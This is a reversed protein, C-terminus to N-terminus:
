ANPCLRFYGKVRKGEITVYGNSFRQWDLRHMVAALKMGHRVDQQGIPVKLVHTLLDASIVRDETVSETSTYRYIIQHLDTDYEGNRFVTVEVDSPMDALIDEWPDKVRRQEQEVAADEWLCEDLTLSEGESEYHAAEGWIQFRDERLKDLDIMAIVLMCWFRRNGDQSQLYESANTTGTEISHRKQKKLFHGYAPRARDTTRSAFTKITDVDAKKLGALDANEHIWIEALQEQVEKSDKGLIKEDSFNEDGALVRWASSKNYGEPSELVTINDFKCGPQRVRAVGAILTKRMCRSNLLTDECNFYNAAVRDLREVGDWNGEAEDLMDAVPDFSNELALSIVADRTHKDTLDFGFQDSMLQRLAIIGNDSIEGLISEIVHKTKEDKYGFLIKNHFIDYTCEINLALIALRANHMSPQPSGDIYTERWNPQGAAGKVKQQQTQDYSRILLREIARRQTKEDKMETIHKNCELPCMLAAAIKENCYRGDNKFIATLAFAVESWSTYDKQLLNAQKLDFVLDGLNGGHIVIMKGKMNFNEPLDDPSKLWGAYQAVETWDIATRTNPAANAGATGSSAAASAAPFDDLVCTAGNFSILKSQCAVRGHKRKKANPLNTTGPLRLIRDINQTGANSGLTEMLAKVRAEVNDVIKKTEETLAPKGQDQIPDDLKIPQELRWLTQIGNGSDLTATPAPKHQEIATLYRAKADEATEGEKPDLDALLYEIAAIDPKSAKITMAARTPNVSYYLNRKGDWQKVFAAVGAATNATITTIWEKDPHISTLVWPGGPRLKELFEITASAVKKTNHAM